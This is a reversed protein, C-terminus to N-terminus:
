AEYFDGIEDLVLVADETPKRLSDHTYEIGDKVAYSDIWTRGGGPNMFWNEGLDKRSQSFWLRSLEKAEFGVKTLYYAVMGSFKENAETKRVIDEPADTEICITDHIIYKM